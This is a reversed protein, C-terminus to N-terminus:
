AAGRHGASGISSSAHTLKGPQAKALAVLEKMNGAPVNSAVVLMEPVTTVLTVPAFDKAVDYPATKNVAVALSLASPALAKPWMSCSSGHRPRM